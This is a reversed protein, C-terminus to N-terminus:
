DNKGVKDINETNITRTKRCCLVRLISDLSFFSEEEKKGM